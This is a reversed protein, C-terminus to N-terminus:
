RKVEYEYPFWTVGCGEKTLYVGSDNCKFRAFDNTISILITWCRVSGDVIFVPRNIFRRLNEFKLSKPNDREIKEKIAQCAIECAEDIENFSDCFDPMRTGYSLLEVSRELTM